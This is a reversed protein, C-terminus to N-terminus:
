DEGGKEKRRGETCRMRRNRTKRKKKEETLSQRTSQSHLDAGGFGDILRENTKV